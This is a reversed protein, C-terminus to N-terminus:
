TASMSLTRPAATAPANSVPSVAGSTSLWGTWFVSCGSHKCLGLICVFSGRLPRALHERGVLCAAQPFEGAACDTPFPIIQNAAALGEIVKNLKAAQLLLPDASRTPQAQCGLALASSVRLTLLSLPGSQRHRLSRPHPAECRSVCFAISAAALLVQADSDSGNRRALPMVGTETIPRFARSGNPCCIV